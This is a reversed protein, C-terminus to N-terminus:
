YNVQYYCMEIKGDKYALGILHEEKIQVDSYTSTLINDSQKYELMTEKSTEGNDTNSVPKFKKNNYNM